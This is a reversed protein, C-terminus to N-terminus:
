LTELFARVAQACEQARTAPFAHGGGPFGPLVALGQPFSSRSLTEPVVADDPAALALLPGPFAALSATEDWGLLWDLGEALREPRAGAMSPSREPALGCTRYFATLVATADRSLGRRMARVPGAPVAFRAFGGLSALARMRPAAHRLLWLVGLSHGVGVFSGEPLVLAEPGFFGLDVTTSPYDALGARLPEWFSPGFAWGHVFVIRPRSM